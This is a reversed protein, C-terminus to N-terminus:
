DKRSRSDLDHAEPVIGREFERRAQDLDEQCKEMLRRRREYEGFTKANIPTGLFLLADHLAEATERYRELLETPTPVQFHYCKGLRGGRSQTLM